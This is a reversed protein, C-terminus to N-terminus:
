ESRMKAPHTLHSAPKGPALLMAEEEATAGSKRRHKHGPIAAATKFVGKRLLTKSYEISM